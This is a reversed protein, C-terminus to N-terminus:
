RPPCAERIALVSAWPDPPEGIVHADHFSTARGRLTDSRLELRLVVGVFGTSWVISLSDGSLPQWGAEMRSRAWLKSPEVAYTGAGVRGSPISDLRFHQPPTHAEPIGTPPLAGSWRGLMLRYCGSATSSQSPAQAALDSAFSITGVAIMLVDLARM